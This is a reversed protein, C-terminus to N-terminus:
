NFLISIKLHFKKVSIILTPQLGFNEHEYTSDATVHTGRRGFFATTVSINTIKELEHRAWWSRPLIGVTLFM